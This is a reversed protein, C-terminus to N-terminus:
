PRDSAATSRNCSAFVRSAFTSASRCTFVRSSSDVYPACYSRTCVCSDSESACNATFSRSCPSNSRANTALADRGTRRGRFGGDFQHSNQSCYVFLPDYDRHANRHPLRGLFLHGAPELFRRRLTTRLNWSAKENCSGITGALGRERALVQWVVSAYQIEDIGIEDGSAQRWQCGLM